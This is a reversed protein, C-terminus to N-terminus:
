GSRPRAGAAARESAKSERVDSPFKKLIPAATFIFILGSTLTARPSRRGALLSENEAAATQQLFGAKARLIKM